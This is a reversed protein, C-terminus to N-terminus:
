YDISNASNIFNFILSVIERRSINEKPKFLNDTNKPFIELGKALAVAGLYERNILSEDYYGTTYIDSLKAVKELGLRKIFIYALEERTILKTSKATNDKYNYYGLKEMLMNVEEVTVEKEPNFYEGEFGINMDSLLLIKRNEKTDDIDAYAYPKTEKYVEGNYNLQEGTFPSIYVPYIDPRYVLRVEYDVLYSESNEIYGKSKNNPNYRNIVNIEYILNFGDKNIFHEFAEKPSMANKPSEFIIDDDWTSYYSYIKGTVGDVAGYIGNYPFEVDENFRNYTYYYGGYVPENNDKYYAIYDYRQDVLKTKSFRDKIQSTLFKEFINKGYERDYKVNVKRWTGTKPDYNDKVSANFSLIKGTKADVTAYAYARYYDQDKNYDIPREDKLEINWVYSAKKGNNAYSKSLTATYTLLNKDIYLYPNKTVTEIAKEKSILSELERIKAIEDETLTVNEEAAGQDLKEKTDTAKGAYESDLVVWENRTLYVEKTVADVSIYSLDPEYVLFAKKVTEDKGNEFIRYYNSKYSLKMNLNEGIIKAAEEKTLKTVSSPIKAQYLWNISASKIEGTAADVSVTVSNDPFFIGNEKRQFRYTYTNSYIGSYDSSVFEIKSSIEPAILRIFDKAKYELENKLYAPINKGSRSSDYKYYYIINNDQDLNIEIYSYNKPNTWNLNWYINTGTNSGYYYFNFESYESPIKIKAKAAKIAAELLSNSPESKKSETATVQFVTDKTLVPMVAKTTLTEAAFITSPLFGTFLVVCLILSIFKKGMRKEKRLQFNSENNVHNLRYLYKRPKM